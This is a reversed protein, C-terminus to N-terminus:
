WPACGAGEMSSSSPGVGSPSANPDGADAGVNSAAGARERTVNGPVTLEEDRLRLLEGVGVPLVGPADRMLPAVSSAPSGTPEGGRARGVLTGAWCASTLPAEPEAEREPEPEPERELPEPEPRPLPAGIPPPEDLAVLLGVRLSRLVGDVAPPED